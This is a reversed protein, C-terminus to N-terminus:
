GTVMRSVITYGGREIVGVAYTFADTQRQIDQEYRKNKAFGHADYHRDVEQRALRKVEDDTLMM